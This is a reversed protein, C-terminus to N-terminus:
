QRGRTKALHQLERLGIGTKSSIRRLDEYELKERIISGDPSLAAKVRVPYQNKGIKLMINRTTRQTIHRIVPLERVGFTGTENILLNALREADNKAAIVSIMHGPRNKKMFIPTIAVDRAGAAMLKEVAHGIVEGSVDDLNTQLVVVEDHGHLFDTDEGVMLRLVNAVTDLDKAGAGYGVKDLQVTPYADSAKSALNVTIAAGTPTSLEESVLSSRVPFKSARLIEVVAPPPNPYDRNSFHSVGSGVGISTSWWSVDSFGLEEILHAVGLIDVLTDASGLEHIEVDKPSHGHVKSEARLLTEVTALVFKSGWDSLGLEESCKRVARRLAEGKRKTVEEKSSVTVLKAGVEGREVSQITVDVRKTGPLCKEVIGGVKRLRAPSAGLDILAGLFKDGSVGAVRADILGITSTLSPKM